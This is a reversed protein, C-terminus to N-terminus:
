AVITGAPHSASSPGVPPLGRESVTFRHRRQDHAEVKIHGQDVTARADKGGDLREVDFGSHRDVTLQHDAPESRRELHLERVIKGLGLNRRDGVAEPLQVRRESRRARNQQRARDHSHARHAVGASAREHDRRLVPGVRMTTEVVDSKCDVVHHTPTVARRLALGEPFV